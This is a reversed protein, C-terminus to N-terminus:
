TCVENFLMRSTCIHLDDNRPYNLRVIQMSEGLGDPVILACPETNEMTHPSIISVLGTEIERPKTNPTLQQGGDWSLFLKLIM